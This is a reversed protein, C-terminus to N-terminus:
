MALRAFPALARRWAFDPIRPARATVLDSRDGLVLTVVSRLGPASLRLASALAELLVVVLAARRLVEARREDTTPRRVEPVAPVVPEGVMGLRRLLEAPDAAGAVRELWRGITRATTGLAEGVSRLSSKEDFLYRQLAEAVVCLQYHRHAVIGPPRVQWGRRCQACVVRRIRVEAIHVVVGLVLVQVARTCSGNRWVRGGGCFVCAAPPVAAHYFDSWLRELREVAQQQASAM